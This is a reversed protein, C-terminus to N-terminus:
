PPEVADGHGAFAAITLQLLKDGQRAGGTDADGELWAVLEGPDSFGIHVLSNNREKALSLEEGDFVEELRTGVAFPTKKEREVTKFVRVVQARKQSGSIPGSNVPHDQRLAPRGRNRRGDGFGRRSSRFM